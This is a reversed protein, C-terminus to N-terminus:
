RCLWRGNPAMWCHPVAHYRHHYRSRHDRDRNRDIIHYVGAGLIAGLLVDGGSYGPRSSPYYYHREVVRPPSYREVCYTNQTQNGWRDTDIVTRWQVCEGAWAWGSALVLTLALIWKM